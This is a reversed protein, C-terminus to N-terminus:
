APVPSPAARTWQPAEGYVQYLGDFVADWSWDCAQARAARGFQERLDRNRVLRV